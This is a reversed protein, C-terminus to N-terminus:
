RAGAPLVLTDYGNGGDVSAFSYDSLEIRDNGDGGDIRDGGLEVIRDNGLEGYLGDNGAGGVLLDDGIGGLLLDNGGNGSLQDNGRNGQVVDTAASGFFQDDGWGLDAAGSWTGASTDFVDNGEGLAVDGTISGSNFVSDDGGGTEIRGIITGGANNTLVDIGTPAYAQNSSYSSWAVDAKILGNNVLKLIETAVGGALIAYSPQGPTTSLAEIHGDNQIVDDGFLSGRGFIIADAAVGEALISGSAGNTLVGGNYMAVGIAQVGGAPGSPAYSAILGTNTVRVDRDWHEIGTAIGSAIAYISGSNDVSQGSSGVSIATAGGNTGQTIMMGTNTVSPIYFGAVIASINSSSINWITGNNTFLPYNYDGWFMRPLSAYLTVGSTVGYAEGYSLDYEAFFNDPGSRPGPLTFLSPM